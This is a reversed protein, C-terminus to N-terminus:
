PGPRRRGCGSHSRRGSATSLYPHSAEVSHGGFVQVVVQAPTAHDLYKSLM